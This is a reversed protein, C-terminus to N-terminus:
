DLAPVRGAIQHVFAEALEAVEGEGYKQLWQALTFAVRVEGKSLLPVREEQDEFHEWLWGLDDLVEDV